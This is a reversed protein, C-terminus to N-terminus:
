NDSKTSLTRVRGKDQKFLKFCSIIANESIRDTAHVQLYKESEIENHFEENFRDVDEGSMLSLLARLYCQSIVSNINTEPNEYETDKIALLYNVEKGAQSKLEFFKMINYSASEEKLVENIMKSCIYVNPPMNFNYGIMISELNKHAFIICYKAEILKNRINKNFKYSIADELISLFISNIDISLSQNINQSHNLSTLLNAKKIGPSLNAITNLIEDPIIQKQFNPNTEALNTLKLM